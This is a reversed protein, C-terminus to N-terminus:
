AWHAIPAAPWDLNGDIPTVAIARVQARYALFEDRNTLHPTVDPSYVDPQNVWDTAQLRSIAIQKNAEASNYFVPVPDNINMGISIWDPCAVAGPYESLEAVVIVNEVVGDLAVIAARM